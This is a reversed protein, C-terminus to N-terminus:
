AAPQVAFVEHPQRQGNGSSCGIPGLVGGRLTAKHTFGAGALDLAEKSEGSLALAAGVFLKQNYDQFIGVSAIASEIAEKCNGSLARLWARKGWRVRRQM